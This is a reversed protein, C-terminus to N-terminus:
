KEQLDEKRGGHLCVSPHSFLQIVCRENMYKLFFVNEIKMEVKLIKM